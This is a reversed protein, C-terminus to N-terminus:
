LKHEVVLSTVAILLRLVAVLSYSTSEAVLSFSRVCCRLGLVSLYIHTSLRETTDWDIHDGHVPSGPEETWPIKWALLSSHSAM